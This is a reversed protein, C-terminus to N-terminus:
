YRLFAAVGGLQQLFPDSQIFDVDAGTMQAFELIEEMQDVHNLVQGCNPCKDHHSSQDFLSKCGDCLLGPVSKGEELVVVDVRGAKVADVVERIGYVAGEGTFVAKRLDAMRQADKRKEDEEASDQARDLMESETINFDMDLTDIVDKRCRQSLKDMLATKAEGPGALIIGRWMDEREDYFVKEIDEAVDSLFRDIAGKRLRQFRMQSWGGKKHKSMIDRSLGKEEVVVGTSVLYIHARHSDLLVVGYDEYDDRLVALPKIYPSSDLVMLNDVPVPLRTVELFGKKASVFIARGREGGLGRAEVYSSAMDLSKQFNDLLDGKGLARQIDKVRADIFSETDRAIGGVPMYISLFTDYTDTEESLSRLDVCDLTVVHEADCIGKTVSM